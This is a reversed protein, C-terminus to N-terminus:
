MTQKINRPNLSEVIEIDSVSISPQIIEDEKAFVQYLDGFVHSSYKPVLVVSDLDIPLRNHIHTSLDSFYFTKGFDCNKINFFELVADVIITKIQNNTLIRNSSKIVKISAKLEDIAHKGIIPKIKASHLIVTDSIMRNELINSFQSRLEFSSPPEPPQTEKGDLWNRINNYLGRTLIFMDIINSAAPDILNYRPTRHMWLFNLNEVGLERKYLRNNYPLLLDETYAALVDETYPVFYWEDATSQRTFYVYSSNTLIYDLTPSDPLGDNNTDEPVVYLDHISELGINVGNEITKQRLVRFSYNDNLACGSTGINAKLIVINDYNSNYTDYTIFSTNPNSIWFKVDDSHMVLKKANITIDWSGDTISEVSIWWENPEITNFEWENTTINFSMFFTSPTNNISQLLYESLTEIETDNFVKRVSLPPIGNLICNTFHEETELLPQIHNLILASILQTSYESDDEPLEAQTITNTKSFSEFYVVLDDGFIKVNEYYERPDHWHIYKSDGSFTRNISRLKLISNDKLPYTNYDVNNVMRDQTYYVSPAIKRIHDIDESIASNQIPSLLSVTFSLTHEKKGSDRYTLSGATNQLSSTPIIHDLNYSSRFWLEFYGSPVDAFNGDGFILRIQDNDLTEIEYKNRNPNTNFIVNQANSLDVQQWEGYRVNSDTVRDDIILGTDIDVNNLWVDTENINNVKIDRTQNPTVGDFQFTHKQLNGQKVFIFFGSNDSTDGLGDNLFLINFKQNKEPRKEYPGYQNLKCSVMEMPLNTGNIAVNFPIVGNALPENNLSYLEFLVDQVQIRDSPLVTGYEQELVKNLILIFQEKWNVNQQDNWKIVKNSLDIGRSDFVRETTSITQLKVLGRSPINRQPTYSLLKALRLVSEKRQATQIFNEHANMDYRYAMLEAAYAFIELVMILDSSEIYDNFDEPYYIKLYDVLSEKITNFDWAAFNIQQFANYVLEWNEARNVKRM